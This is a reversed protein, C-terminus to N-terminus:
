YGRPGREWSPRGSFKPKQKGHEWSPRTDPWIPTTFGASMGWDVAARTEQEDLGATLGAQRLAARATELDLRGAAVYGGAARAAGLLTQHRTGPLATSVTKCAAALWGAAVRPEVGPEWGGAPPNTMPRTPIPRVAALLWDLLNQPAWPLNEPAVPGALWRYHGHELVSPPAVLYSRGLARVDLGPYLRVRAPLQAALDSSVRLYLHYGGSPTACVMPLQLQHAQTLKELQVTPDPTDTDTSDKPADLDIVLVDAAPRIAWNADPLRWAWYDIQVALTSAAHFGRAVLHGAPKKDGPTLPLVPWGMYALLHVAGLAHQPNAHWRKM